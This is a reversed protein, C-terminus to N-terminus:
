QIIRNVSEGNGGASSRQARDTMAIRKAEILDEQRILGGWPAMARRRREKAEAAFGGEVIWDLDHVHKPPRPTSGDCIVLRELYQVRALLCFGGDLKLKQFPLATYKTQTHIHLEQLRPLVRAIYGFVVRSYQPQHRTGWGGAIEFGLHLIKLNRCKWVGCPISKIETLIAAKNINKMSIVPDPIRGFLDMHAIPYATRPARPHLLHSSLTSQCLYSHLLPLTEPQLNSPDHFNLSTVVNSLRQIHQM